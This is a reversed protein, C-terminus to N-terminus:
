ISSLFEEIEQKTKFGIFRGVEEGDKLAIVTPAKRIGYKMAQEINQSADLIEVNEFEQIVPSLQACPACNPMKFVLLKKM